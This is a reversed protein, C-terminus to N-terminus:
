ITNLHALFIPGDVYHPYKFELSNKQFNLYNVMMRARKSKKSLINCFCIAYKKHFYCIFFDCLAFTIMVFFFLLIEKIAKFYNEKKQLFLKKNNTSFHEACLLYRM